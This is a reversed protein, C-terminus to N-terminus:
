TITASLIVYVFRFGETMLQKVSRYHSFNTITCKHIEWM